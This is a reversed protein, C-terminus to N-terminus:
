TPPTRVPRPNPNWPSVSSTNPIPLTAATRQAVRPAPAPRQSRQQQLEGQAIPQPPRGDLARSTQFNSGAATPRGAAAQQMMSRQRAVLDATSLNPLQSANPAM